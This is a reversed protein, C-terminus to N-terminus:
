VRYKESNYILPFTNDYFSQNGRFVQKNSPGLVVFSVHYKAILFTANPDGNLIYNIDKAIPRYNFAFPAVLGSYGMLVTSGTLAPIVHARKDPVVIIVDPRTLERIRNALQIEETTILLHSDRTPQITALRLVDLTGSLTTALLLVGM